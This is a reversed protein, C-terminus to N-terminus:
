TYVNESDTKDCLNCYICHRCKTINVRNFNDPNFNRFLDIFNKLERFEHEGPLIVPKMKNTSIEYFALNDIKFGMESMCYYQAWLQYLQGNFIKKIQYKREILTKTAFRYLDIKGMICLTNSCVSISVMDGQASVASRDDIAKHAIKGKVQPSAHFVSEDSEMYINHLYISYPCFVFDNLMSIPIYDEM